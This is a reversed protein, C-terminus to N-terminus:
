TAAVRKLDALGHAFARRSTSELRAAWDESWGRNAVVVSRCCRGLRSGRPGGLAAAPVM